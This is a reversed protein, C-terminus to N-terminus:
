HRPNNQIPEQASEEQEGDEQVEDRAPGDELVERDEEQQPQIQVVTLQQAYTHDQLHINAAGVEEEHNVPIVYNHYRLAMKLPTSIIESLEHINRPLQPRRLQRMM